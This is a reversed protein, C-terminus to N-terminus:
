LPKSNKLEIWRSFYKTSKHQHHLLMRGILNKRRRNLLDSRLCEFIEVLRDGNTKLDYLKQILERGANAHISLLEFNAYLQIAADALDKASQSIVGPFHASDTMGEAGIPTTIVPTGVLWADGIKGKIGAGYRLPALNIRYARLTEFQDTAWGKVRFGTKPNDLQMVDKSPYAGYIHVEAAPLAKRILPWIEQHMWFVADKNPPHRFNGIMVFNKKESPDGLNVFSQFKEASYAFRNLELLSAPVQFRTVLLQLEFDSIMLTLDCRYVSAIERLSDETDLEIAATAIAELSAGAKLADMRGRRLFHLDITDLVRVSEPSHEQVRWGFQEETVFRDFIVYDPLLESIWSDFAPDNPQVTRVAVGMQSLKESHESEKSPCAFTVTWGHSLYIEILAM